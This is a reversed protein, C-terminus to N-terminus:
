IADAAETAVPSGIPDIRDQQLDPNTVGIALPKFCM